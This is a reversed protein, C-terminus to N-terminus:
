YCIGRFLLGIHFGWALHSSIRLFLFSPAFMNRGFWCSLIIWQTMFCIWGEVNVDGWRRSPRSAQSQHTRALYWCGCEVSAVDSAVCGPSRGDNRKEFHSLSLSHTKRLSIKTSIQGKKYSRQYGRLSHREVDKRNYIVLFSQRCAAAKQTIM